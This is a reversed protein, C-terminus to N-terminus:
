HLYVLTQHSQMGVVDGVARASVPKGTKAFIADLAGVVDGVRGEAPSAFEIM